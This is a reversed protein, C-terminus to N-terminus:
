LSSLTPHHDVPTLFILSLKRYHEDLMTNHHSNIRTLTIRYISKTRLSQLPAETRQLTRPLNNCGHLDSGHCAEYM